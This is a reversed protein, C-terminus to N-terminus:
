PKYFSWLVFKGKGPVMGLEVVTRTDLFLGLGHRQELCTSYCTMRSLDLRLFDMYFLQIQGGLEWMVKELETTIDPDWGRPLSALALFARSVWLDSHLCM